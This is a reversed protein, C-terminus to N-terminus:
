AADTLNTFQHRLRDRLARTEGDEIEALEAEAAKVGARDHMGRRSRTDQEQLYRRLEERRAEVTETYYHRVTKRAHDRAAAETAFPRSSADIYHGDITVVVNWHECGPRSNNELTVVTRGFTGPVPFPHRNGPAIPAPTKTTM